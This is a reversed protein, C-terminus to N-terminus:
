RECSPPPEDSPGCSPELVLTGLAGFSAGILAGGVGGLRAGVSAGTLANRFVEARCSTGQNGGEVAQMEDLSIAQLGNENNM